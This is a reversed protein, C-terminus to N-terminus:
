FCLGLLKCVLGFVPPYHGYLSFIKRKYVMLGANPFASAASSLLAQGQARITVKTIPLIIKQLTANFLHQPGYRSARNAVHNCTVAQTAIDVEAFASM